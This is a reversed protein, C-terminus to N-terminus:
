RRVGRSVLITYMNRDRCKSNDIFFSIREDLYRELKKPEDACFIRMGKYSSSSSLVDVYVIGTESNVSKIIGTLYTVEDAAFAPQGSMTVAFLLIGMLLVAFLGFGHQRFNDLRSNRAVTKETYIIEMIDRRTLINRVGSMEIISSWAMRLNVITIMVQNDM